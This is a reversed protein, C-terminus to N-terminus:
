RLAKLAVEKSWVSRDNRREYDVQEALPLTDFRRLDNDSAFDHTTYQFGPRIFIRLTHTCRKHRRALKVEFMGMLVRVFLCVVEGVLDIGSIRDLDQHHKLTPAVSTQNQWYEFV